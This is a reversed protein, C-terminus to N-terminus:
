LEPRLSQSRAQQEQNQMQRKRQMVQHHRQALRMRDWEGALEPERARLKVAALVEIKPGHLDMGEKIERVNELRNQLCQTRAKKRAQQQQGAPRTSQM